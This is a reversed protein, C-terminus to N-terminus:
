GRVSSSPESRMPPLQAWISQVETNYQPLVLERPLVSQPYQVQWQIHQARWNEGIGGGARIESTLAANSVLGM